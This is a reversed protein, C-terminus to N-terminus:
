GWYPDLDHNPLMNWSRLMEQEVSVIEVFDSDHLLRCADTFREDNDVDALLAEIIEQQVADLEVWYVLAHRQRNLSARMALMTSGTGPPGDCGIFSEIGHADAIGTFCKTKGQNM